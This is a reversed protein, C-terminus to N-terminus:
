IISCIFDSHSQYLAICDLVKALWNKMLSYLFARWLRLKYLKCDKSCTRTSFYNLSGNKWLLVTLRECSSNLIQSFNGPNIAVVEPKYTERHSCLSGLEGFWKRGRFVELGHAFSDKIFAVLLLM